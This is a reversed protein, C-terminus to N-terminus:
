ENDLLVRSKGIQANVVKLRTEYSQRKDPDEVLQLKEEYHDKKDVLLQLLIELIEPNVSKGKEKKRVLKDFKASLKTFKM